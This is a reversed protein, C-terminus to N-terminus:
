LLRCILVHLAEVTASTDHPRAILGQTQCITSFRERLVIGQRRAMALLRGVPRCFKWRFCGVKEVRIVATRGGISRCSFRGLDIPSLINPTGPGADRDIVILDRGPKLAGV